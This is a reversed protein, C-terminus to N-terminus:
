PLKKSRRGEKKLSIIVVEKIKNEMHLIFKVQKLHKIVSKVNMEENKTAVENITKVM